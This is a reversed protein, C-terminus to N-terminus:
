EFLEFRYGEPVAMSVDETEGPSIESTQEEAESLVVEEFNTVDELNEDVFIVDQSDELVMEDEKSESPNVSKMSTESPFLNQVNNEQSQLIKAKKSVPSKESLESEWHKKVKSGQLKLLHEKLLADTKTKQYIKEYAQKSIKINPYQKTFDEHRYAMSLPSDEPFQKMHKIVLSDFNSGRVEKYLKQYYKMTVYVDPNTKLYESHMEFASLQSDVPLQEIHKLARSRKSYLSKIILAEGDERTSGWRGMNFGLTGLFFEKCVRIKKVEGEEEGDELFGAQVPQSLDPM